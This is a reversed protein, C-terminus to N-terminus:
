DGSDGLGGKVGPNNGIGKGAAQSAERVVRPLFVAVPLVFAEWLFWLFKKLVSVCAAPQYTRREREGRATSKRALVSLSKSSVAAVARGRRASM